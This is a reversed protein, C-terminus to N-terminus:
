RGNALHDFTRAYGGVLEDAVGQYLKQESRGSIAWDGPLKGYQRRPDLPGVTIAAVYPPSNTALGVSRARGAYALKRSWGAAATGPVAMPVVMPVRESGLEEAIETAQQYSGVVALAVTAAMDGGVHVYTARLVSVCGQAIVAETLKDALVGRCDKQEALGQRAWGQPQEGTLYPDRLFDPFVEETRLNHWAVAAFADNGTQIRHNKIAAYTLGGALVLPVVASITALIGFVRRKRGRPRGTDAPSPQPVGVPGAPPAAAPHAYPPVPPPQQASPPVPQAPQAFPAAPPVPQAFPAAPAVQPVPPAPPIPASRPPEYASGGYPQYPTPPQSM